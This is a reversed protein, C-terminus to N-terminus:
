CVNKRNESVVEDIFFHRQDKAVFNETKPRNKPANAFYRFAIIIKTIKYNM